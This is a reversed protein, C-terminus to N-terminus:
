TGEVAIPYPLKSKRGFIIIEILWRKGSFIEGVQRILQSPRPNTLRIEIPGM